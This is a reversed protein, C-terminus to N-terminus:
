DKKEVEELGLGYVLPGNNIAIYRATKELDTNCFNHWTWSPTFLTDGAKWDVRQGNVMSYGRGQLFHIIAEHSHRHLNTSMGPALQSLRCDMTQIHFGKGPSIIKTSLNGREEEEELIVEEEKVLLKSNRKNKKDDALNQQTSKADDWINM